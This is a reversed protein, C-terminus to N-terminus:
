WHPLKSQASRRSSILLTTLQRPHKDLFCVLCVPKSWAHTLAYVSHTHHEDKFSM